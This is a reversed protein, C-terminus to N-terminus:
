IYTETQMNTHLDSYPGVSGERNVVAPIYKSTLDLREGSIERHLKNNNELQRRKTLHEKYLYLQKWFM